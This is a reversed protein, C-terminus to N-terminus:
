RPQTERSRWLWPAVPHPDAWLGAERARARHEANAYSVRDAESQEKAYAKYHWALGADIMVLNIDRGNLLVKGVIRGYRDQKQWAIVVQRGAVLSALHDKARAGYPQAREPADIGALRIRHQVKAPDLVTITDGDAVRVVRGSLEKAALDSASAALVLALVFSMLFARLSGVFCRSL